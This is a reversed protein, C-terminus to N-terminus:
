SPLTSSRIIMILIFSFAAGNVGWFETLLPVFFIAALFTLGDSVLLLKQQRMVTLMYYFMIAM